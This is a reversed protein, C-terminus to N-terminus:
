NHAVKLNGVSDNNEYVFEEFPLRFRNYINQSFFYLIM